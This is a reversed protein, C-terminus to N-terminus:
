PNVWQNFLSTLDCGCQQEALQKFDASTAIKWAFTQTYVHMLNDFAQQGLQQRLALFFFPGRGYVIAVYEQGTYASVPKGIPINEDNLSDWTAQIEDRYEQAGQQGHEDLYYQWTVFEAM